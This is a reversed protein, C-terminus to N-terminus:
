LHSHLFLFILGTIKEGDNIVGKDMEKSGGEEPGEQPIGTKYM